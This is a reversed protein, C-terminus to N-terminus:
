KPQSKAFQILVREYDAETDIDLPADQNMDVFRILDPRRAIVQRAGQDGTVDNLADFMSRDFLVPHGTAGRYRAQVTAARSDWYIRLITDIIGPSMAPQDGLLFMAADIEGPLAALGARMSTSQGSAFDPNLVTRIDPGALEREIEAAANGLVVIVSDLESALAAEVVRHITSKGCIDLLQKPRGLRKSRGAALIIGAIRPREPPNAV